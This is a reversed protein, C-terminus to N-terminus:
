FSPLLLMNQRVFVDLLATFDSVHDSIVSQSSPVTWLKTNSDYSPPPLTTGDCIFFWRVCEIGYTKWSALKADLITKYGPPGDAMWQHKPENTSANAPPPYKSTLNPGIDQGYWTQYYWPMNIGLRM